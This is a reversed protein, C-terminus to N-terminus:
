KCFISYFYYSGTDRM